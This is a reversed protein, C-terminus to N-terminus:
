VWDDGRLVRCGLAELIALLRIDGQLTQDFVPQVRVKGQCLAAALFFYSASSVDGEIRCVRGTYRQNKEILFHDPTERIVEVGFRTMLAATMEVYPRSPVPGQLVLSLGETAYPSSILLSSIYQSSDINRLEVKGGPLGRAQIIVPSFGEKDQSRAEVGLSNLAALLPQIPRELLRAAGTLVFDGKGLCVVTTLLRMATGNNGLYIERHPNTIRGKTGHVVMDGDHIEIGAGLLTLAEMLYRSDESLLPGQLLSDGEALAAMILARQTYSKSGPISVQAQFHARPKIETM